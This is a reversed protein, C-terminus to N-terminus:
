TLNFFQTLRLMMARVPQPAGEIEVTEVGHLPARIALSPLVLADVGDLAREVEARLVARGQQARVYDEALIYRAM